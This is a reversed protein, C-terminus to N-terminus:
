SLKELINGKTHGETGLKNKKEAKRIMTPLLEGTKRFGFKEYFKKLDIVSKLTDCGGERPQPSCLLVMNYDKYRNIAENILASAVGENTHTAKTEVRTINLLKEGNCLHKYRPYDNTFELVIQGLCKGSCEYARIDHVRPSASYVFVYNGKAM